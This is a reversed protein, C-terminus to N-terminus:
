LLKQKGFLFSIIRPITNRDNNDFYEAVDITEFGNQKAASTFDSINHHFCPVEQRGTETDFRAKTGAFQKFPHLEGVYVLGNPKVVGATKKFIEGLDEIHELVLSFSVLDYHDKAFSWEDRIDAHIFEVQESKIKQKAHALMEESLDVAIVKKAKSLLFETNKGTGCGVELCNEVNIEELTRRIALAELDRTKNPNTDYQQSWLNYSQQINM